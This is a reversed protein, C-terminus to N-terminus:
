RGTTEGTILVRFCLPLYMVGEAVDRINANQWM